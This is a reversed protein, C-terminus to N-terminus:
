QAAPAVTQPYTIQLGDIVQTIGDGVQKTVTAVAEKAPEKLPGLLEYPAAAQQTTWGLNIDQGAVTASINVDGATNVTYDVAPLGADAASAADLVLEYQNAGPSPLPAPAPGRLFNEWQGILDDWPAAPNTDADGGGIAYGLGVGIAAGITGAGLAAVAAVAAAVGAGAAAGIAAGPGINFPTPPVVSGIAAGIGTGIPVTFLATAIFVPVGVSVAAGVGGVVGFLVATAAKQDAEADSFGVSRYFQAIKAEAWASYENISVAVNEPIDGRDVVETGIRIKDIPVHKPAVPATPVPTHLQPAPPASPGMPAPETWAVPPAEQPPSPVIGTPYEPAPEPEPAPVPAPEATVGGQEPSPESTVGGQEPDALAPGALIGGMGISAVVGAAILRAAFPTGTCPMTSDPTSRRSPSYMATSDKESTTTHTERRHKSTTDLVSAM